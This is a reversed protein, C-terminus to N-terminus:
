RASPTGGNGRWAELAAVAERVDGRDHVRFLWVCASALCLLLRDQPSDGLSGELAEWLRNFAPWTSRQLNFRDARRLKELLPPLLTGAELVARAEGAAPFAPLHNRKHRDVASRALGYSGAVARLPIGLTLLGDIM